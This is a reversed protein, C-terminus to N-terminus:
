GGGFFKRGRVIHGSEIEEVTWLHESEDDMAVGKFGRLSALVVDEVERDGAYNRSVDICICQARRGGFFADLEQLTDPELEEYLDNALEIYLVKKETSPFIWQEAGGARPALSDFHTRLQDETAQIFLYVSRM